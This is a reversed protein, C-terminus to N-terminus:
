ILTGNAVRTQSFVGARELATPVTFITSSARRERFGEFSSM